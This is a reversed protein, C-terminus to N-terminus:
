AYHYQFANTESMYGIFYKCSVKKSLMIRRINVKGISIPRKNGYFANKNICQKDTVSVKQEM